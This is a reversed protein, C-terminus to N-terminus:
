FGDAFPDTPGAKPVPTTAAEKGRFAIPIDLARFEKVNPMVARQQTGEWIRLGFGAQGAGNAYRSPVIAGFTIRYTAPLTVVCTKDDSRVVLYDRTAVTKTKTTKRKTVSM